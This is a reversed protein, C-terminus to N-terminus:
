VVNQGYSNQAVQGGFAGGAPAGFAGGGFGTQPQQFGGGQQQQFGQQPPVVAGGAAQAGKKKPARYVPPEENAPLRNSIRNTPILRALGTESDVEPKGNDDKPQFETEDVKIILKNGVLESVDPYAIFTVDKDDKGSRKIYANEFGPKIANIAKIIQLIVYRGDYKDDPYYAVFGDKVDEGEYDGEQVRYTITMGPKSPDNKANKLEADFISVVYYGGDLVVSGSGDRDKIPASQAHQPNVAIPM